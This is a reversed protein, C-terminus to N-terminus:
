NRWWSFTRRPNVESHLKEWAAARDERFKVATERANLFIERERQEENQKVLKEKVDMLVNHSARIAAVFADPEYPRGGTTAPVGLSASLAAVEETLMSPLSLSCEENSSFVKDPHDNFTERIM